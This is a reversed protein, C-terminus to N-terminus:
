WKLREDGPELRGPERRGKGTVELHEDGIDALYHNAAMLLEVVKHPHDALVNTTEGPDNVLDYLEFTAPVRQFPGPSGDKGPALGTLSPYGHPFLLKFEPTRIGSLAGNIYHMPFYSHPSPLATDAEFHDVISYGDIKLPPLDSGILEAITPLLDITSLMTDTSTGAPIRDPWRAIMPVRIGGEYFTQKGERYPGASGGHNGFRLWPGNDSTFIILSNNTADISEVADMIQQMSWDLEMVTDAYLGQGSRGEFAESVFLPVHVMPHALYLFFPTDAHNRIFEVSRTTFDRTFHRQDDATIAPNVVQTGEVMPLPPFGRKRATAGPSFHAVDPHLPWMDNSYPIGYFTNFGHNTPLFKPHHGLHWKGFCATAYGQTQCLEALTTESPNLGTESHPFLAGTISVREHFAGTLLSARSSSCVPSTVLFQTFIKGERALRELAPTPIDGGFPGIDAYGLDDIFVIIVNPRDAPLLASTALLCLFTLLKKM